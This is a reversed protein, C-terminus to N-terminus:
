QSDSEIANKPSKRLWKLAEARTAFYRMSVGRNQSITELFYAEKAVAEPVVLAHKLQSLVPSRAICSGHDYLTTTSPAQHVKSCDVLVKQPGNKRCVREGLDRDDALDESTVDGTYIIELLGGDKHVRVHKPM